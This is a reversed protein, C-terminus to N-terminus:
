TTRRTLENHGHACYFLIITVDAVPVEFSSLEQSGMFLTLRVQIPLREPQVVVVAFRLLQRMVDQRLAAM